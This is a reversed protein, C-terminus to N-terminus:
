RGLGGTNKAPVGAYQEPTGDAFTDAGSAHREVTYGGSITRSAQPNKLDRAAGQLVKGVASSVASGGVVPGPTAIDERSLWEGDVLVKAERAARTFRREVAATRRPGWYALKFEEPTGPM